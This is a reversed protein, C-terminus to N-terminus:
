AICPGEADPSLFPKKKRAGRAEGRGKRRRVALPAVAAPVNSRQAPLSACFVVGGPLGRRHSFERARRCRTLGGSHRTGPKGQRAQAHQEAASSVRLAYRPAARQFIGAALGRGRAAVRVDVLAPTILAILAQVAEHRDFEIGCHIESNALCLHTLRGTAAKEKKFEKPHMLLVFKTRTAM